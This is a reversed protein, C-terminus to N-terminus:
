RLQKKDRSHLIMEQEESILSISYSSRHWRQPELERTEGKDIMNSSPQIPLKLEFNLQIQHDKKLDEHVNALKTFRSCPEVCKQLRPM